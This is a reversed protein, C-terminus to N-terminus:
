VDRSHFKRVRKMTRELESKSCVSAVVLNFEVTENCQTLVEFVVFPRYRRSWGRKCDLLQGAKRQVPKELACRSFLVYQNLALLSKVRM